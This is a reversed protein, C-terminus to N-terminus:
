FCYRVGLVLKWDFFSLTEVDGDYFMLGYGPRFDFSFALPLNSLHLDVGGVANLGFKGFDPTGSADYTVSYGEFSMSLYKMLGLSVGGGAYWSLTGWDTQYFDATYAVNPNAEFTYYGLQYTYDYESVPTAALNVGLDVQLRLNDMVNTKYSVGYMSGVTAGVEHQASVQLAVGAVLMVLFLTKKM